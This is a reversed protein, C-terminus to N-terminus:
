TASRPQRFWGRRAARKERRTRTARAAIVITALGAGAAQQPTPRMRGIVTPADHKVRASDDKAEDPSVAREGAPPASPVRDGRSESAPGPPRAVGHRPAAEVENSTPAAAPPVVQDSAGWLALADHSALAKEATSVEFAQFRGYASEVEMPVDLPLDKVPANEAAADGFASPGLAIMGGPDECISAESDIPPAESSAETRGTLLWSLDFQAAATAASTAAAGSDDPKFHVSTLVNQVRQPEQADVGDILTTASEFGDAPAAMELFGGLDGPIPPEGAPPAPRWIGEGIELKPFRAPGGDEGGIIEFVLGPFELSIRERLRELLATEKMGDVGQGSWPGPPLGERPLGERPWGEIPEGGGEFSDVFQALPIERWEGEGIRVEIPAQYPTPVVSLM